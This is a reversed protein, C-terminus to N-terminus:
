RISEQLNHSPSYLFKTLYLGHRELTEQYQDSELYKFEEIRKKGFANNKDDLSQSPHSVFVSNPKRVTKLFREFIKGPDHATNFDYIGLFDENTPIKKGGLDRKLSRGPWAILANKLISVNRILIDNFDAASNRVYIKNFGASDILDMLASKFVPLQHIHQHGDIYDPAMGLTEMFHGLQFRFRELILPRNLRQTYALKLTQNFPMDEYCLHLGIDARERFNILQRAGETWARGTVLCSVASIRGSELLKLIANNVGSSMGFDDACVIIGLKKEPSNSLM